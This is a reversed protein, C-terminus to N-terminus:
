KEIEEIYVKLVNLKQGAETKKTQETIKIIKFDTSKVIVEKEAKDIAYKYIDLEETYKRGGKLYFQISNGGSSESFFEMTKKNETWSSITQDLKVIEGSKYNKMQKYLTDDINTLGRYLMKETAGNKYKMFLSELLRAKRELEEFAKKGLFRRLNEREIEGARLYKRINRYDLRSWEKVIEKEIETINEHINIKIGPIGGKPPLKKLLDDLYDAIEDLPMDYIEDPLKGVTMNYEDMLNKLREENPGIEIIGRIDSDPDGRLNTKKGMAPLEDLMEHPVLICHCNNAKLNCYRKKSDTMGWKSIKWSSKTMPLQMAAEKCSPCPNSSLIVNKLKAGKLSKLEKAM